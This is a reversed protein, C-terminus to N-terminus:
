AAMEVILSGSAEALADEVAHLQSSTFRGDGSSISHKLDPLILRLASELSTAAAAKIVAYESAHNANRAGAIMRELRDCARDIQADTPHRSM